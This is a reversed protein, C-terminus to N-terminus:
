CDELLNPDAVPSRSMPNRTWPPCFDSHFRPMAPPDFVLFSFSVDSNTKKSLVLDSVPAFDTIIKEYTLDAPDMPQFYSSCLYHDSRNFERLLITIRTAHSRDAM